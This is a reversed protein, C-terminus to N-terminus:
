IFQRSTRVAAVVVLYQVKPTLILNLGGAKGNSALEDDEIDFFKSGSNWSPL